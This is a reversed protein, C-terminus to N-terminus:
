FITYCSNNNVTANTKEEVGDDMRDVVYFLNKIDDIILGRKIRLRKPDNYEARFRHFRSGFDITKNVCEEWILEITAKNKRYNTFRQTQICSNAPAKKLDGLIIEKLTNFTGFSEDKFLKLLKPNSTRVDDYTFLGKVETKYKFTTKFQSGKKLQTSFDLKLNICENIFDQSKLIEASQELKAYNRLVDLSAIIRINRNDHYGCIRGVLGQVGNAIMKKRNEVVLRVHNKLDGLDKGASLANIVILVIKKNNHIISHEWMFSDKGLVNKIPIHHVGIAVVEYENSYDILLESLKAAQVSNAARIIALGGKDQSVFWDVDLMLESSLKKQDILKYEQTVGLVTSINNSDTVMNDELMKSVGFYTNPIDAEVIKADLEGKYVANLACYPTASILLIKVNIQKSKILSFLNKNFVSRKGSGYDCEDFVILKVNNEKLYFLPKDRFDPVMKVVYTISKYWKGNRFFLKDELVAKNQTLLATDSMSTMFLVTEGKALINAFCHNSLYRITDTKGFQMPGKGIVIDKEKFAEFIKEAFNISNPYLANPNNNLEIDTTLVFEDGKKQFDYSKEVGNEIIKISTVSSLEDRKSGLLYKLADNVKKFTKSM